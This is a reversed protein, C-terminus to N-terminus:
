LAAGAAFRPGPNINLKAVAAARRDELRAADEALVIERRRVSKAQYRAEASSAATM